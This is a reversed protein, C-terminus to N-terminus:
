CLSWRGCQGAGRGSQFRWRLLIFREQKAPVVSIEGGLCLIEQEQQESEAAQESCCSSFLSSSTLSSPLPPLRGREDEERRRGCGRGDRLEPGPAAGAAPVMWLGPTSEGAAM